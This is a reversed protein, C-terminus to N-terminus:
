GGAAPPEAYDVIRTGSARIGYTVLPRDGVVRSRSRGSLQPLM